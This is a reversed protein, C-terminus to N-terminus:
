LSLSELAEVQDVFGLDVRIAEVAERVNDPCEDEIIRRLAWELDDAVTALLEAELVACAIRDKLSPERQPNVSQAPDHRSTFAEM